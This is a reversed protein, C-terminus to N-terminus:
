AWAVEIGIQATKHLLGIAIEMGQNTNWIVLGACDPEALRLPQPTLLFPLGSPRGSHM